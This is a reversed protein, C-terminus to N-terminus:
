VFKEDRGYTDCTVEMGGEEIQRITAIIPSNM